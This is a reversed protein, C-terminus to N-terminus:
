TISDADAGPSGIPAATTSRLAGSGHPGHDGRTRSSSQIAVPIDRSGCVRNMRAARSPSGTPSRIKRSWAPLVPAAYAGYRNSATASPM